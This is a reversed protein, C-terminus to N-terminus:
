LNWDVKIHLFKTIVKTKFNKKLVWYPLYHLRYKLWLPNASARCLMSYKSNGSKSLISPAEVLLSVHFFLTLTLCSIFLRAPLLDHQSFIQGTDSYVQRLWRGGALCLGTVLCCSHNLCESCRVVTVHGDVINGTFTGRMLWQPPYLCERFCQLCWIVWPSYSHILLHPQSINSLFDGWLAFLSGGAHYSPLSPEPPFSSSEGWFSEHPLFDM